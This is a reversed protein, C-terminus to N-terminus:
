ALKAQFANVREQLSASVSVEPLDMGELTFTKAMNTSPLDPATGVEVLVPPHQSKPLPAHVHHPLEVLEEKSVGRLAQPSAVEGYRASLQAEVSAHNRQFRETAARASAILGSVVARSSRPALEQQGELPPNSEPHAENAAQNAFLENVQLSKKGSNASNSASTWEARDIVGDHNADISDFATRPRLSATENSAGEPTSEGQEVNSLPAPLPADLRAMIKHQLRQIETHLSSPGTDQSVESAEGPNSLEVAGPRAPSYLVPPVPNGGGGGLLTDSHTNRMAEEIQM